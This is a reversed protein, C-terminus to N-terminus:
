DEDTVDSNSLVSYIAKKAAKVIVEHAGSFHPAEPPNFAWKVGKQATMIQIKDKDLQGAVEKLENVARVFSTDNDSNMIEPVGRRSTFGTFANLFSGTDLGWAM